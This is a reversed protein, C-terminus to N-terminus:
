RSESRRDQSRGEVSGSEGRSTKGRGGQGGAQSGAGESLSSVYAVIKWVQEDPIRGAFAPMGNPRGQVISQFVNAPRGGYIWDQDAFPPGIGGGGAGGHCGACNFWNYYQRGDAIASKNGQFPNKFVLDPRAPGAILETTRIIPVPAGTPPSGGGTSTQDDQKCSILLFAFLLRGFDLPSM